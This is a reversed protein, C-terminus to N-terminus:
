RTRDAVDATSTGTVERLVRLLEGAYREETFRGRAWAQAEAGLRQGAEPREALGRLLGALGAVDGPEYLLGTRGHQVLEATGGSRAGVVARAALMGEVTVRGFAEARSCVVLVDASLVVPFPEDLEGLFRVREGLRAGALAELRRRYAPEGRGVLLLEADIGREVLDELARIAEDQRKGESQYGVSVVRFPRRPPLEAWEASDPVRVWPYIVRMKSRPVGRAYSEAVAESNIVCSASLRDVIRLSAREGLDFDLGHDERGFERIQWVHPRRCLAAAFAGTCVTVSNTCVVDAGLRRIARAAPVACAHTWGTRALGRLRASGAFHMWWRYPVIRHAVARRALEGALPGGFPLLVSSTVGRRGLADIAELLSREAGGRMASHSVWTVKM